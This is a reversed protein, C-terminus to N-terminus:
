FPAEKNKFPAFNRRIIIGRTRGDDGLCRPMKIFHFRATDSEGCNFHIDLVRCKRRKKRYVVIPRLKKNM